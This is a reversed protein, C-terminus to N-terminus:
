LGDLGPGNQSKRSLVVALGGAGSDHRQGAVGEGAAFVRLIRPTPKRGLRGPRVQLAPGTQAGAARIRVQHHTSLRQTRCATSIPYYISLQYDYLLLM